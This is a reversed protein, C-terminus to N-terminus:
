EKNRTFAVAEMIGELQALLLILFDIHQLFVPMVPYLMESATDPFLAVISLTWITNTIIRKKPNIATQLGTRKM